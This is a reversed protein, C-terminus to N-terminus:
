LVAVLGVRVTLLDTESRTTDYYVTGAERRISGEKLYVADGGFLYRVNLDLFLSRFDSPSKDKFLRMMVGWGGGWSLAIDDQNTAGIVDAGNEVSTYTFLYNIGVLADAYPRFIGRPSQLRFLAHTLVINNTTNVQLRVDPLTPAIPVSWSQSGYVVYDFDLALFLPTHKVWTGVLGGVGYGDGVRYGFEGMPNGQTLALGVVVPDHPEPALAATSDVAEIDGPEPMFLATSDAAEIDGALFGALLLGVNAVVLSWSM